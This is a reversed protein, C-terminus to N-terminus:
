KAKHDDVAARLLDMTQGENEIPKNKHIRSKLGSSKGPRYGNQAWNFLNDRLPKLLEQLQDDQSNLVIVLGHM